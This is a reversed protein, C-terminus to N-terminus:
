RHHLCCSEDILPALNSALPLPAHLTVSTVAMCLITVAFATLNSNPQWFSYLFVLGGGTRIPLTHHLCCSEGILPALNSANQLSAHLTVAPCLWADCPSPSIGDLELRDASM